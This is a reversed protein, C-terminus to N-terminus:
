AMATASSMKKFWSTISLTNLLNATIRSHANAILEHFFSPIHVSIYLYLYVFEILSTIRFSLSPLLTDLRGLLVQTSATRLSYSNMKM